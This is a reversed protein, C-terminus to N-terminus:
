VPSYLVYCIVKACLLFAATNAPFNDRLLAETDLFLLKSFRENVAGSWRGIGAVAWSDAVGIYGGGCLSLSPLLPEPSRTNLHATAHKHKHERFLCRNVTSSGSHGVTVM